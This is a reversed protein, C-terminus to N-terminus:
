FRRDPVTLGTTSARPPGSASSSPSAPAIEPAGGPAPPAAVAAVEVRHQKALYGKTDRLDTNWALWLTGAADVTAAPKGDNRGGSRVLRLPGSWTRGAYRLAHVEWMPWYMAGMPHNGRMDPQRTTLHKVLLWPSGAHDVALQPAEWYESAPGVIVEARYGETRRPVSITGRTAYM